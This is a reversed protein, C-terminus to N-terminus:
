QGQCTGACPRGCRLCIITTDYEYRQQKTLKPKLKDMIRVDRYQQNLDRLLYGPIYDLIKKHGDDIMLNSKIKLNSQSM